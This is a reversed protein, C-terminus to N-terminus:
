RDIRSWHYSALGLLVPTLVLPLILSTVHYLMRGNALTVVFLDTGKSVDFLFATMTEPEWVLPFERFVVGDLLAIAGCLLILLLPWLLRAAPLKGRRSHFRASRLISYYVCAVGTTSWLLAYVFTTPSLGLRLLELFSPLLGRSAAGSLFVGIAYSILFSAYALILGQLVINIAKSFVITGSRFPLLFTFRGRPDYIERTMSRVCMGVFVMAVFLAALIQYVGSVAIFFATISGLVVPLVLLATMPLSRRFEYNLYRLM